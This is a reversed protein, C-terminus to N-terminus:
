GDKAGFIALKVADVINTIINKDVHEDIEVDERRANKNSNFTPGKRKTRAVISGGGETAYKVGEKVRKEDLRLGDPNKLTISVNRAKENERFQKMEEDMEDRIGFMNPAVLDFTISTIRGKHKNEFDWFTQPDVIANAEIIYPEDTNSNIHKALSKIISLGSGVHDKVEFCLKQGDAHPTPDIFISSARWPTREVEKFGDGPPLNEKAKFQRGIYGVVLGRPRSADSDPIYHFENKVHKFEIKKSFKGRLWAERSLTEGSQDKLEFLSTQARSILVLRILDFQM